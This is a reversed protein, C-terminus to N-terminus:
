VLMGELEATVDEPSRQDLYMRAWIELNMLALLRDTGDIRNAEHQGILERVAPSKFLGRNEISAESLLEHM